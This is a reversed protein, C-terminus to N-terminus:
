MVCCCKKEEPTCSGVMTDCFLGESEDSDEYGKEKSLAIIRIEFTATPYLEGIEATTQGDEVMVSKCDGWGEHLVDKCMVMYGSAHEVSDWSVTISHETSSVYNLGTPTNLKVRKVGETPNTE